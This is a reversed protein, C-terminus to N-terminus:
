DGNLLRLTDHDIIAAAYREGMAHVYEAPQMTAPLTTWILGNLHNRRYDLWAEDRELTPGGHAALRQLYHELLSREHTRRDVVTLAGAIFYSVDFAWCSYCPGAWDIFFPQGSAVICTNGLHADGHVVAHARADNHRWLARLAQLNRERDQLAAPLQFVAPDAYHTRWHGESMLFENYQRVATSGVQLWAVDDFRRGWTSAHLQALIDLGKEVLAPSWPQTPAGFQTGQAALNDLILIGMGPEYGAYWPRLLSVSLQPALDRFFGAEIQTGTIEVGKLAVRLREDLEGKVCLREPPGGAGPHATYEVRLLLKTATGWLVNEVNAARVTIEPYRERLALTLWQPTIGEISRPLPHTSTSM